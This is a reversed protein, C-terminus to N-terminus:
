SARSPKARRAARRKPTKAKQRKAMAKARKSPKIKKVKRARSVSTTRPARNKTKAELPALLGASVALAVLLARFRM